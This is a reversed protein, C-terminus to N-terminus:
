RYTVMQPNGANELHAFNNLYSLSVLHPQYLLQTTACNVLVTNVELTRQANLGLLHQCIAAIPGGSTFVVVRRSPGAEDVIRKMAQVCRSQFASWPERYDGDHEGGMWRQM